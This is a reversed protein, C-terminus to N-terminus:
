ASAITTVTGSSGKYLLAGASVYLVGGGSPTNAPATTVNAIAIGGVLGSSLSNGTAGIVLNDAVSFYGNTSLYNVGSRNLTTDRVAAGTGWTLKGTPDIAFRNDADGSVSMTLASSTSTDGAFIAVVPSSDSTSTRTFQALQGSASNNVTLRLSGPATGVGLATSVYLSEDTKLVGVGSRYLDVDRADTGDGWSLKGTPDIGFRSTTDGAVSIGLAQATSTDGAYVAVVPSTDATSTREFQALQGSASALVSLPLSGPSTGIGVNGTLHSTGTVALTEGVTLNDDTTLTGTTSRYLNTDRTASGSGWALKGTPDAAFRNVSDGSVSVALASSTSTDGALVLVVPSTDSTSTRSFQALQGSAANAVELKISGSATQGIGLTGSVTLSGDTELVGTSARYLDTDRPATGSGWTMKGTPDIAFRNDADGSVSLALLSSTSTDGAFLAVVPSSDSTSSRTFQALQGAASNSVQFKISAGAAEGVGLTSQVTLSDDTKLVNASARYLNTDRADTGDGWSIKGTPDVGLRSTADGNVSVGIAQATSTDGALVLVVPSSDSTSSRTFQALQGSSSSAVTLRLSGPATGVGLATAVEMSDDTRLIGVGSRYLNTDRGATGPGWTMSGDVLMVYRQNADASVNTQYARATADTGTVL